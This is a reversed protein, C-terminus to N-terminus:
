YAGRGSLAAPITMAMIRLDRGISINDIYDREIALREVFTLEGRGHVQMPGTIGPKVSLRYRHEPAYREVLELQEPRPGVLTMHGLFVNWLQPLEDLSWRRLVRGLRTVRPDDHLKFMPEALRDFSVLNELLEEADVVMSRFKLMRFPRGGVGARAQSFVVPGPGDLKIAAAIVILLPSLAVLAIASGAVDIARKLFITASSPDRREYELVPLEALHNLQVAPRFADRCPLVVTLLGGTDSSLDLIRRVQEADLSAPAYVLRDVMGLLDSAARGDIELSEHEEVVTMHVDRFLELKRKVVGRTVASGIIAVREPPTVVRWLFRVFARLSFVAAAAVVGAVIATSAEPSGAPTLELLLVLAFTGSVAWLVLSEAEDITTHRLPREDRDYLGLLKAIVVWVPLLALSWTLQGVTGGSAIGLVFCWLFAAAIDALALLRRLLSYRWARPVRRRVWRRDARVAAPLHTVLPRELTSTEVAASHPPAVM